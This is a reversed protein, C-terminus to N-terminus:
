ELARSGGSLVAHLQAAQFPRRLFSDIGSREARQRESTGSYGSVAVIRFGDGFGARMTEAVEFGDMEPLGLDLFVVNPLEEGLLELARADRYAIRVRHGHQERLAALMDANDESDDVVVVGISVEALTM